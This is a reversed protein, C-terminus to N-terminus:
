PHFQESIIKGNKVEYVCLEAMQMRPQGKFTVDLAMTCAFSQGAVLPESITLTHMTDVMAVFQRGKAILNPLGTTVKPSMPTAQPEISVADDAYLERQAAEWKQERCLAVLRHAVELTTM